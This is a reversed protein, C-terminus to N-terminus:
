FKVCCRESSEIHNTLCVIFYYYCVQKIYDGVPIKNDDWCGVWESVYVIFAIFDVNM